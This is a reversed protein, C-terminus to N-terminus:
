RKQNVVLGLLLAHLATVVVFLSLALRWQQLPHEIAAHWFALNSFLTFFLSCLLILRESGMAPSFAWAVSRAVGQSRPLTIDMARMSM